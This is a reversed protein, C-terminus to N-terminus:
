RGTEVSFVHITFKDEGDGSHPRSECKRVLGAPLYKHTMGFVRIYNGHVLTMKPDINPYYEGFRTLDQEYKDNHCQWVDM